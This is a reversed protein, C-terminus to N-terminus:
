AKASTTKYADFYFMSPGHSKTAFFHFIFWKLFNRFQKDSLEEQQFFHVGSFYLFRYVPWKFCKRDTPLDAVSAVDESDWCDFPNTVKEGTDNVRWRKSDCGPLDGWTDGSIEWSGSWRSTSFGRARKMVAERKSIGSIQMCTPFGFNTKRRESTRTNRAPWEISKSPIIAIECHTLSALSYRNLHVATQLVLQQEFSTDINDSINWNENGESLVSPAPHLKSDHVNSKLCSKTM